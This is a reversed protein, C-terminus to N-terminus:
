KEVVFSKLLINNLYNSFTEDVESNRIVSTRADMDSVANLWNLNVAVDRYFARKLILQGQTDYHCHLYLDPKATSNYNKFTSSSISRELSYIVEWVADQTFPRSLSVFSPLRARHLFASMPRKSVMWERLLPVSVGEEKPVAFINTENVSEPTFLAVNGFSTKLSASVSTNSQVWHQIVDRFPSLQAIDAETYQTDRDNESTLIHFAKERREFLSNLGMGDRLDKIPGIRWCVIDRYLPDVSYPDFIPFFGLKTDKTESIYGAITDTTGQFSDWLQRILQKADTLPVQSTASIQLKSGDVEEIYVNAQKMIKQIFATSYKQFNTSEKVESPINVEDTVFKQLLNHIRTLTKSVGNGMGSVTYTKKGKNLRVDVNGELMLLRLTEGQGYIFFLDRATCPTEITTEELEKLGSYTDETVSIGWGSIIEDILVTKKSNLSSHSRHNRRLYDVLLPKTFSNSLSEKLEEIEARTMMTKSPKFM